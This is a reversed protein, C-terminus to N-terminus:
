HRFEPAQHLVASLHGPRHTLSIDLLM